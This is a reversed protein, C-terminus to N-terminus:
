ECLGALLEADLYQTNSLVEVGGASPSTSKTEEISNLTVTSTSPSIQPAQPRPPLLSSSAAPISEVLSQSRGLPRSQEPPTSSKPTAPQASVSRGLSPVHSPSGPQSSGADSAGFHATLSSNYFASSSTPPSSVAEDYQPLPDSEPPAVNANAPAYSQPRAARRQQEEERRREEEEQQLLREEEEALHRALAEDASIQRAAYLGASARESRRESEFPVSIDLDPVTRAPASSPGREPSSTILSPRRDPSAAPPSPSYNLSEKLARALQEEESLIPVRQRSRSEQASIELVRNYVADDQQQSMAYPPASPAPSPEPSAFIPSPNGNLPHPSHPPLISATPSILPKPPLSPQEFDPKRPLPPVPATQAHRAPAHFAHVGNQFFYDNSQSRPITYSSKRGPVLSPPLGIRPQPFAPPAGTSPPTAPHPQPLAPNYFGPIPAAQMAQGYFSHRQPTGVAAYPHLRPTVSPSVPRRAYPPYPGPERWHSPSAM